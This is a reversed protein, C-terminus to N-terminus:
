EERPKAGPMPPRPLRRQQEPTGPSVSILEVEFILASNPPISNPRGRKGYALEPPIFLEWKAGEKMLQLAERWGKIVKRVQFTAPRGREYSSDFETGDVLTGRYNVVVSDNMGPTKGEGAQIERYQLGSPLTQVGEKEANAALFQQSRELNGQAKMARIEKLAASRQLTNILPKDGSIADEAGKILVEPVLELEQRRLDKGLEYGLSYIVKDNESGLEISTKSEDAGTSPEEALCVGYLLGLALATITPYNSTTVGQGKQKNQKRLL